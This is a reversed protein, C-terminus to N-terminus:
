AKNWKQKKVENDGDTWTFYFEIDGNALVVVYGAFLGFEVSIQPCIVYLGNGLDAFNVPVTKASSYGNEAFYIGAQDKATIEMTASGKVYPGVIVPSASIDGQIAVSRYTNAVYDFKNKAEYKISFIAAETTAIATAPEFTYYTDGDDNVLAVMKFITATTSLDSDGLRVESAKVGPDSFSGGIALSNLGEEGPANFQFMPYVSIQSVGETDDKDIIWECSSLFPVALM